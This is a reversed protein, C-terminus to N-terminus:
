NVNHVNNYKSKIDRLFISLIFINRQYDGSKLTIRLFFQKKTHHQAIKPPTNITTTSPYIHLTTVQKYILTACSLILSGGCYRKRIVLHFFVREIVM